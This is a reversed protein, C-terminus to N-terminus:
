FPNINFYNIGINDYLLWKEMGRTSFNIPIIGM